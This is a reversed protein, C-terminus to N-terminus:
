RANRLLKSTSLPYRAQVVAELDIALISSFVLRRTDCWVLANM